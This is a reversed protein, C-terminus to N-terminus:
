EEASDAQSRKKCEDCISYEIRKDECWCRCQNIIIGCKECVKKFHGESRMPLGNM